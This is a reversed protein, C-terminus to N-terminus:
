TLLALLSPLSKILLQSAIKTETYLRHLITVTSVSEYSVYKHETENVTDARSYFSHWTLSKGEGLVVIKLATTGRSRSEVM